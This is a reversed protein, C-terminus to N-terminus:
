AVFTRTRRKLASEILGPPADESGAPKHISMSLGKRLDQVARLWHMLM